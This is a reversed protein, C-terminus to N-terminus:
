STTIEVSSPGIRVIVMSPASPANTGWARLEISYWGRLRNRLGRNSPFEPWLSVAIDAYQIAGYLDTRSTPVNDDELVHREAERAPWEDDLVSFYVTDRVHGSDTVVHKRLTGEETAGIRLMANRSRRSRADTKLEVRQCGREEFAHRVMLLKAATNIATRQWGPTIWTWGIEVRRHDPAMNGFRTSGVVTENAAGAQHSELSVTAFPLATYAEQDELDTRLYGELDARTRVDSLALRWLDHELGVAALADLHDLTLPELRVHAGGLPTRPM